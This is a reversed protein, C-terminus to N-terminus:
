LLAQVERLAALKQELGPYLAHVMPRFEDFDEPSLLQRLQAANERKFYGARNAVNDASSVQSYVSQQVSKQWSGASCLEATPQSWLVRGNVASTHRPLHTVIGLARINAAKHAHRLVQYHASGSLQSTATEAAFLLDRYWAPRGVAVRPLEIGAVYHKTVNWIALAGLPCRFM